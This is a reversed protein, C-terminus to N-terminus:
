DGKLQTNHLLIMNDAFLRIEDDPLGLPLASMAMLASGCYFRVAARKAFISDEHYEWRDLQTIQKPNLSLWLLEHEKPIGTALKGDEAPRQVLERKPLPPPLFSRGINKFSKM